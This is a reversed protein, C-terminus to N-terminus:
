CSRCARHALGAAIMFASEYLIPKSPRTPLPVPGTVKGLSKSASSAAGHSVTRSGAGQCTPYQDRHSGGERAPTTRMPMVSSCEPRDSTGYGLARMPRPGAHRAGREAGQRRQVERQDTGEDRQLGSLDQARRAPTFVSYLTTDATVGFDPTGMENLSLMWHLTHTRTDGLEVSGWRDWQALAAAPDALALYKAFIDQWIDKPSMPLDQRSRPLDEIEDKLCRAVNRKVIPRTVGLYVSFTRSRCCTSARSRARSTPGGPTTPTSAASCCASRSTDQVGASVGPWPHRVLLPQHCQNRHHLPLHGPRATRPQRHGRGVPDARGLRQAAESSSEQNNGFRASASAALGVLPGRLRRLQAPLSLRRQRARHHRHRRDAPRGHRGVQGTCIWAPDRLGIEAAARIWYGYHFHHDNM